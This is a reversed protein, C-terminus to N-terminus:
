YCKNYLACDNRRQSQLYMQQLQQQHQMEEQFHRQKQAEFEPDDWISPQQKRETQYLSDDDQYDQYDAFAQSSLALLVLFLLKM